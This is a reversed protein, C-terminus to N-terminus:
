NPPKINILPSIYSASSTGKTNGYILNTYNRPNMTSLDNSARRQIGMSAEYDAPKIPLLTTGPQSPPTQPPTALTTFIPTVLALLSLNTIFSRRMATHGTIHFSHLYTTSAFRYRYKVITSSISLVLLISPLSHATQIQFLFFLLCICSGGVRSNPQHFWVDRIYCLFHAEFVVSVAM